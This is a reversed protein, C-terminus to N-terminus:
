LEVDMGWGLTIALCQEIFYPWDDDSFSDSKIITWKGYQSSLGIELDHKQKM